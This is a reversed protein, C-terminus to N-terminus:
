PERGRPHVAAGDRRRPLRVTVVTGGGAREDIALDFEADYLGLLRRRLLALAHAADPPGSVIARRQDAPIGPGNDAVTIVLAEGHPRVDLRVLGGLAAREGWARSGHRVANEVLPQILFPPVPADLVAPDVALEVRLRDGFRLQELELYATITELEERLSVLPRDHQELAARMFRALMASAPPVATPDTSALASLTNLANFLFHPSMRAQLARVEAMAAARAQADLARIQRVVLLLLAVGAGDVVARLLEMSPAASARRGFLLAAAYRVASLAIVLAFGTGPHLARAPWYRRLLGGAVGGAVLPLVSAVLSSRELGAVLLGACVGVAVGIGPGALLGATCAAILRANLLAHQQASIWVETLAMLLFFALALLMDQRAPRVTLRAAFGTCGLAFMLTVLVCAKELTQVLTEM